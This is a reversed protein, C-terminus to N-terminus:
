RHGRRSEVQIVSKAGDVGINVEIVDGEERVV